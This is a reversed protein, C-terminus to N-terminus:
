YKLFQAFFPEYFGIEKYYAKIIHISSDIAVAMSAVVRNHLMLQPTRLYCM